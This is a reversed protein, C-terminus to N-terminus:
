ASVGAAVSSDVADTPDVTSRHLAEDLAFRPTWGLLRKAKDNSYEFPKFRADIQDPLAISPLKARGDFCRRNIVDASRALVSMIPLPVPLTSPTSVLSRVKAAYAAQTPLDDDVINIIEGDLDAATSPDIVREAAFVIAEATNEVYTIPPRARGGIRLNIPGFEGGLLPHWLEDRGYIMGPRLMVMSRGEEAGFEAFLEDQYLKTEAYEDRGVPDDIVPFTEDLMSGAPRRGYDYVSFTSIAVLRRVGAERASLLLNETGIVTGAFRAFFDGGKVAALHIVADVGNMAETLGHRSALDGAVLTLNGTAAAPDLVTASSSPRVLARVAHGRATLQNVVHRGLFGTAGTVFITRSSVLPTDGRAEGATQRTM